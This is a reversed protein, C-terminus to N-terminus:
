LKKLQNTKRAPPDTKEVEVKGRERYDDRKWSNEMFIMKKRLLKWVKDFFFVVVVGVIFLLFFFFFHYNFVM